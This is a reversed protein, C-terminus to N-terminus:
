GGVASAQMCPFALLSFQDAQACTHSLVFNLLRICPQGEKIAYIGRMILGDDIMHGQVRVGAM